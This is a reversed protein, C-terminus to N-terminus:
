IIIEFCYSVQPHLEAISFFIFSLSLRITEAISNDLFSSTNNKQSAFEVLRRSADAIRRQDQLRNRAPAGHVIVQTEEISEISSSRARKLSQSSNNALVNNTARQEPELNNNQVPQFHQPFPQNNNNPISAFNRQQYFIHNQADQSIFNGQFPPPNPIM